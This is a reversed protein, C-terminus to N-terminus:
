KKKKRNGIAPSDWKIILEAAELVDAAIADPSSEYNLTGHDIWIAPCGINKGLDIDMQMDGIVFSGSLDIDHDKVAQMVMKPKPKRCDCKEDPHHPCYYIGDVRVDECALDNIMKEHIKHLTEENFIGRGIGSQNTIVILKYGHDRLIKLGRATNPYLKFDETCSCYHADIAMTGDRDIFVARNAM